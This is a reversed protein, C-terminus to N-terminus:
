NGLLTQSQSQQAIMRLSIKCLPISLIPRLLLCGQGISCHIRPRTHSGAAEAVSYPKGDRTQELSFRTSPTCEVYVPGRRRGAQGDIGESKVGCGEHKFLVFESSLYTYANSANKRIYEGGRNPKRCWCWGLKAATMSSM